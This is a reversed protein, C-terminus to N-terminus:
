FDDDFVVGEDDKKVVNVLYQNNDLEQNATQTKSIDLWKDMYKLPNNKPFDYESGLGLINHVDQSCYLAWQNSLKENNGVLEHGDSYTYNNWRFESEIIENFISQLRPKCQQLAIKGRETLLEYQIVAKNLGVHVELEDQAIKQVSYGIPPFWGVKCIAFTQSFSGMFQIAEMMWQTCVLTFAINYLEQTNDRLGLAYEHSAIYGEYMVESIVELRQLAEVEEKVKDLVEKPNDFSLRVIESYACAHVNENAAVQTWAANLESSSIFPAMVTYYNKAAITDAEWQFMLNKIMKDAIHPPCTKFMLNCPSYDFENEDWDLTKMEKYKKWVEPYYKYITNFLGADQQGLLLNPKEYDTKESNFIKTNIM